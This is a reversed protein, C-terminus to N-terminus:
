KVKDKTTIHTVRWNGNPKHKNLCQVAITMLDEYQNWAARMAPTPREVGVVEYADHLLALANPWESEADKALTDIESQLSKYVDPALESHDESEKLLDHLKM